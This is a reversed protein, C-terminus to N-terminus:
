RSNSKGFPPSTNPVGYRAKNKSKRWKEKKDWSQNMKNMAAGSAEGSATNMVGAVVANVLQSKSAPVVDMFGSALKALAAHGMGEALARVLARNDNIYANGAGSIGAAAIDIVAGAKLVAAAEAASLGMMSGTAVGGTVVAGAIMSGYKVATATRELREYKDGEEMYDDGFELQMEIYKKMRQKFRNESYMEMAKDYQKARRESLGEYGDVVLEHDKMAKSVQIRMKDFEYGFKLRTSAIKTYREKLEESPNDGAEELEKLVKQYTKSIYKARKNTENYKDVLKQLRARSSKIKKNLADVQEKGGFMRVLDAPSLGGFAAKAKPQGFSQNPLNMGGGGGGDGGGYAMATGASLAVWVAVLLVAKTTSSIVKKM